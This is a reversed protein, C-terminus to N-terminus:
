KGCASKNAQYWTIWSYRRSKEPQLVRVGHWLSGRHVALEGQAVGPGMELFVGRHDDELYGSDKEDHAPHAKPYMELGGDFDNPDSLLVNATVLSTLDQHAHLEHREEPLYRKIFSDCAFLKAPIDKAGGNQKWAHIVNEVAPTVAHDLWHRALECHRSTVYEDKSCEGDEILDTSFSPQSDVADVFGDNDGEAAAIRMVKHLNVHSWQEDVAKRLTEAALTPLLGPVVAVIGVHEQLYKDKRAMRLDAVPEVSHARVGQQKTAATVRQLLSIQDTLGSCAEGPLTCSPETAWTASVQTLLILAGLLLTSVM